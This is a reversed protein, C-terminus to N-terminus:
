SLDTLVFVGREYYGSGPIYKKFEAEYMIGNAIFKAFYYEIRDGGKIKHKIQEFNTTREISSRDISKVDALNKWVKEMVKEM